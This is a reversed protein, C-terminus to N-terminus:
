TARGAPAGAGHLAREAQRIHRRQHTAIIRLAAYVHYRVKEAFPSNIRMRDLRLNEVTDMWALLKAQREEFAALAENKPPAAAPVFAPQTRVRGRGPELSWRLASAFLGMRYRHPLPERPDAAARAKELRALMADTTMTLHAVCESASWGGDPPRAIWQRDTAAAALRALADSADRLEARIAHLQDSVSM